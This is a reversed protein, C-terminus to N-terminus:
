KFNIKNRSFDLLTKVCRHFLPANVKINRFTRARVSLKFREIMKKDFDLALVRAESVEKNSLINVSKLADSLLSSNKTWDHYKLSFDRAKIKRETIQPFAVIFHSMANQLAELDTECQPWYYGDWRAWLKKVSVLLGNEVPNVFENMPGNDPVIVPLGFSSAELITLGIGELRSPYVYVDGMFYLGPATVTEEKITISDHSILEDLIGTLNPLSSRLNVQSHIVLHADDKHKLFAKILLDTGKRFPSMGASHFFTVRDSRVPEFSEPKYLSTDTGWPIYLCQPHSSFAEQHRHTNCIVFDHVDFLPVTRETYYDIYAGNKIGMDRCLLVPAWFKQENFIVLEINNVELWMRFDLLNIDTPAFSDPEKGWTVYDHDWNVDGVAFHEGGRAYIYVDNKDALVDRFQRSVYAAGREFWTTVIGIKM